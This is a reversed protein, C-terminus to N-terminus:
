AARASCCSRSCMPGPQWLARGACVAREVCRRWRRPRRRVAELRRRDEFDDLLWLLPPFRLLWGADRGSAGYGVHEAQLLSVSVDPRTEKLHQTASLGAFGGGVIAVDVSRSGKLAPRSAIDEDFWHSTRFPFRV